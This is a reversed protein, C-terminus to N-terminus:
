RPSALSLINTNMNDSLFTELYGKRFVEKAGNHKKSFVYSGKRKKVTWGKDLANLIFACKQLTRSDINQTNINTDISIPTTM